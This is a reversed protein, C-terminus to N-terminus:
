MSPAISVAVKTLTCPMFKIRPTTRDTAITVGGPGGADATAQWLLAVRSGAQALAMGRDDDVAAGHEAGVDDGAM